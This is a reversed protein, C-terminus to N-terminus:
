MLEQSVLTEMTVHREKKVTTEKRRIIMATMYQNSNNMVKINNTVVRLGTQWALAIDPDPCVVHTYNINVMDTGSCITLSIDELSHAAHKTGLEQLLRPDQLRLIHLSSFLDYYIVFKFLDKKKGKKHNINLLCKFVGM